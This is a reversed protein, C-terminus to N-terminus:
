RSYFVQLICLVTSDDWSGGRREHRIKNGPKGVLGSYAKRTQAIRVEHGVVEL